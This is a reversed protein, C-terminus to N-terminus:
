FQIGLTLPWYTGPTFSRGTAFDSLVANASVEGRLTLGRVKGELGVGARVGPVGGYPNPVGPVTIWQPGAGFLFYPRPGTMRPGMILDAFASLIRMDGDASFPPNPAARGPFWAGEAEIRLRVRRDSDGFLVSLQALPGARHRRGYDGSSPVAVGLAFGPQIGQ